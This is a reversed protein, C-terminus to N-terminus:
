AVKSNQLNVPNRQKQALCSDSDIEETIDSLERNRSLEEAITKERVKMHSRHLLIHEGLNVTM